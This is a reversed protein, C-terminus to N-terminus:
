VVTFRDNCNFKRFNPQILVIKEQHTLKAWITINGTFIILFNDYFGLLM